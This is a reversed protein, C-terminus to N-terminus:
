AAITGGIEATDHRVARLASMTGDPRRHTGPQWAQVGDWLVVNIVVGTDDVVAYRQGGGIEVREFAVGAVGSGNM